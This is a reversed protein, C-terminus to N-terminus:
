FWGESPPAIELDNMLQVGLLGCTVGGSILSRATKEVASLKRELEVIKVAQADIVHLAKRGLPTQYMKALRNHEEVTLKENEESKM